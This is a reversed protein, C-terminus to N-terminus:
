SYKKLLAKLDTLIKHAENERFQLPQVGIFRIAQVLQTQLEDVRSALADANRVVMKHQADIVNYRVKQRDKYLEFESRLLILENALDDKM